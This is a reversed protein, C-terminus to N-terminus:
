SEKCHGGGLLRALRRGACALSVVLAAATANDTCCSGYATVVTAQVLAFLIARVNFAVRAALATRRLLTRTAFAGKIARNLTLALM